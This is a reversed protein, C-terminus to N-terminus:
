ADEDYSLMCLTEMVGPSQDDDNDTHDESCLAAFIASAKGLHGKATAAAAASVMSSAFLSKVHQQQQQWSATAADEDDSYTVMCLTDIASQAPPSAAATASLSVRSRAITALSDRELAKFASRAAAPMTARHMSDTSSSSYTVQCLEDPYM